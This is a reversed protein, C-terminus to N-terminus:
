VTDTVREDPSETLMRALNRYADLHPLFADLLESSFAGCEKKTIMEAAEEHSLAKRYSRDTRLVDYVDALSIVQVYSPIEDGRLGMPYGEGDVREHHRFCIERAYGCIRRDTEKLGLLDVCCAGTITHQQMEEFEDKTLKGPKNLLRKPMVKKGLDHLVAAEAIDPIDEWLEAELLDASWARCLMLQVFERFHAGHMYKQHNPSAKVPIQCVQVKEM